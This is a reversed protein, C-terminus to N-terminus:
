ITRLHEEPTGRHTCSCDKVTQDSMSSHLLLPGSSHKSLHTDRDERDERDQRDRRDQRDWRGRRVATHMEHAAMLLVDNMLIKSTMESKQEESVWSVDGAHHVSASISEEEQEEDEEQEEQPLTASKPKM